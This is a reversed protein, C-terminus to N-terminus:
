CDRAWWISLQITRLVTSCPALVLLIQLHAGLHRQWYRHGSHSGTPEGGPARLATDVGRKGTCTLLPNQPLTHDQERQCGQDQHAWVSTSGCCHCCAAPLLWATPSSGTHLPRPCSLEKEDELIWAVQSCWTRLSMNWLTFKFFSFLFFAWTTLELPAESRTEKFSCASNDM